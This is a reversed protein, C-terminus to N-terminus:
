SRFRMCVPLPDADSRVLQNHRDQLSPARRLNHGQGCSQFQQEVVQQLVPPLHPRWYRRLDSTTAVTTADVVTATAGADSPSKTTAAAATLRSPTAPLPQRLATAARPTPPSPPLHTRPHKPQIVSSGYPAHSPPRQALLSPPHPDSNSRVKGFLFGSVFNRQTGDPRFWLPKPFVSSPPCLIHLPTPTHRLTQVMTTIIVLRTPPASSAPTTHPHLLIALPRARTPCCVSTTCPTNTTATAAAYERTATAVSAKHNFDGVSVGQGCASFLVHDCWVLRRGYTPERTRNEAHLTATGYASHDPNVSHTSSPSPPQFPTVTGAEFHGAPM